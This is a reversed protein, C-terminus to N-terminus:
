MMWRQTTMSRRQCSQDVAAQSGHWHWPSAEDFITWHIWRPLEITEEGSSAEDPPASTKPTDHRAPALITAPQQVYLSPCPGIYHLVFLPPLLLIREPTWWHRSQWQTIVDTHHFALDIFLVVVLPDTWLQRWPHRKQTCVAINATQAESRIAKRKKSLFGRVESDATYVVAEMQIQLTYSQKWAFSRAFSTSNESESPGIISEVIGTDPSFHFRLRRFSCCLDKAGKPRGIKRATRYLEKWEMKSTKWRSSGQPMQRALSRVESSRLSIDM